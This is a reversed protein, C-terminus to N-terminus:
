AAVRRLEEIAKVPDQHSFIAKAIAVDQVGAQAIKKINERNIGGDMGITISRNREKAAALLPAVKQITEPIFRQGSFGPQVSMLLVHNIVDLLPLLEAADTKPNIAISPIWNKESICKAIEISKNTAEFHFSVISGKKIKLIECWNMPDDVMLHVWNPKSTAADIENVISAGFTLNPVFHNDMVDLHFGACHPELQQIITGLELPNASILSPFIKIM